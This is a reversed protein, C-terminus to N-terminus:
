KEGPEKPLYNYAYYRHTGRTYGFLAIRSDVPPRELMAIIVDLIAFLIVIGALWCAFGFLFGTLGGSPATYGILSVFPRGIMAYPVFIVGIQAAARIASGQIAEQPCTNICRHCGECRYNWRPRGHVLRIAHVPCLKVCSGCSTCRSDAVFMKGIFKRAIWRFPLSALIFFQPVLPLYRKIDPTGAVISDAIKEIKEDALALIGPVEAPQAVAFNCGLTVNAPYSVAATHSVCYGKGKFVTRAHELAGGEYGGDYSANKTSYLKGIIAVVAARSGNGAPIKKLYELVIGPMDMDYVPFILVHLDFPEDPPVTDSTITQYRATYGASECRKRILGAAHSSNGTGSFVHICASPM